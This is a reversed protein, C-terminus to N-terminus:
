GTYSPNELIIMVPPNKYKKRYKMFFITAVALAIGTIGEKGLKKVVADFIMSKSHLSPRFDPSEMEFLTKYGIFLFLLFIGTWIWLPKTAQWATLQNTSRTFFCGKELKELFNYVDNQLFNFEDSLVGFFTKRRITVEGTNPNWKIARIKEYPISKGDYFYRYKKFTKEFEEPIHITKNMTKLGHEDM